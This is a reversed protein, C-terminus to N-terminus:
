TMFIPVILSNSLKLVFLLRNSATPQSRTLANLKSARKYGIERIVNKANASNWLPRFNLIKTECFNSSLVLGKQRSVTVVSLTNAPWFLRMTARISNQQCWTRNVDYCISRFYAIFLLFTRIIQVKTRSQYTMLIDFVAENSYTIRYIPSARLVPQYNALFFKEFQESVAQLIRADEFGDPIM